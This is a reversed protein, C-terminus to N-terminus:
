LLSEPAVVGYVGQMFRRWGSAEPDRTHRVTRGDAEDIWAVGDDALVVRWARKPSANREFIGAVQEALEPSRVLVGIEANVWLSRPDLNLSGVFVWERDVVFSKEHLAARSSGGIPNGPWPGDGGAPGSPRLEHLEVGARLLAERYRAYGAQTPVVDNSALSNTLIRVRVGAAELAAFSAVGTDGPVFYPSVVLLERRAKPAIAHLQGALLLGRRADKLAPDDAPLALKAPDDALVRGEGWHLRLSGERVASVLPSSALSRVYPTDRASALDDAFWQRAAARQAEGGEVRLFASIPVAFESNWYRDFSASAEAVAPGVALLDLDAYDLDERAEFYEDGLNRGGLIAAANDAIWAKNHMRRNIRAFDGIVELWRRLSFWARNATPNFLRVEISPHADLRALAEDADALTWDDILLRVRVGREAAEYVRGLLLRGSTDGHVIYYQLDLTRDAAEALAARAVFADIGRELVVFGSRGPHAEVQPPLKAHLRTGTPDALASSPEREISALDITACGAIALALAAAALLSVAVRRLCTLPDGM